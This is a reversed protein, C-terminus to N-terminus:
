PRDLGVRGTQPPFGLYQQSAAANIFGDQRREVLGVSVCATLLTDLRHAAVGPRRRLNTSPTHPWRGLLRLAERKLAAFLVKSAIFGYALASLERMDSIAAM